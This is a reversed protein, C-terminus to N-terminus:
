AGVLLTVPTSGTRPNSLYVVPQGILLGGCDCDRSWWAVHVASQVNGCECCRYSQCPDAAAAEQARAYARNETRTARHFQALEAPSIPDIRQM